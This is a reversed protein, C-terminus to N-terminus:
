TCKTAVTLNNNPKSKKELGRSQTPLSGNPKALRRYAAIGGGGGWRGLIPMDGGGGGVGIM